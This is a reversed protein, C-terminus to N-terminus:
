GDTQLRNRVLLLEIASKVTVILIVIVILIVSLAVIAPDINDGRGVWRHRLLTIGRVPYKVKM